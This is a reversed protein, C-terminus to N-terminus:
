LQIDFHQKVAEKVKQRYQNKFPEELINKILQYANEYLEEYLFECKREKRTIMCDFAEIYTLHYTDIFNEIYIRFLHNVYGELDLPTSCKPSYFVGQKQNYSRKIVEFINGDNDYLTFCGIIQREEYEPKDYRICVYYHSGFKEVTLRHYNRKFLTCELYKTRDQHEKEVWKATNLM